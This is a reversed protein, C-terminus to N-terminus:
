VLVRGIRGGSKRCRGGTFEGAQSKIQRLADIVQNGYATINALGKAVGGGSGGSLATGAIGIGASIAVSAVQGLGPIVNVGIAAAPLIYKKFFSGIGGLEDTTKYQYIEGNPLGFLYGGILLSPKIQELSNVAYIVM